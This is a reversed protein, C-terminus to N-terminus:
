RRQQRSVFSRLIIRSQVIRVTACEVRGDFSPMAHAATFPRVGPPAHLAHSGAACCLGDGAALLGSRPHGAASIKRDLSFSGVNGFLMASFKLILFRSSTIPGQTWGRLRGGSREHIKHVTKWAPSKRCSVDQLMRMCAIAWGHQSKVCGHWKRNETLFRNHRQATRPSPQEPSREQSSSDPASERKPM